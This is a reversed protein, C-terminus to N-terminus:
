LATRTGDVQISSANAAFATSTLALELVFHCCRDIM